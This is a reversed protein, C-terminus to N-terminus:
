RDQELDNARKSSRGVVGWGHGGVSGLVEVLPHLLLGAVVLTIQQEVGHPDAALVQPVDVLIVRIKRGERRVRHQKSELPCVLVHNAKRRRSHLLSWRVWRQLPDLGTQITLPVNLHDVWQRSISRLKGQLSPHDSHVLPSGTCRHLHLLKHRPGIARQVIAKDGPRKQDARLVESVATLGVRLLDIRGAAGRVRHDLHWHGAVLGM